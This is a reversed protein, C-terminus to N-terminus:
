ARKKKAWQPAASCLSAFDCFRCAEGPKALFKRDARMVTIVQDIDRAIAQSREWDLEQSYYFSERLYYYGSEVKLVRTEQQFLYSYLLVQMESFKSWMSDKSLRGTKFDVIQPMKNKEPNPHERVLDIIGMVPTGSPLTGRIEQEIMLPRSKDPLYFQEFFNKGIDEMDKGKEKNKLPTMTELASDVKSMFDHLNTKHHSKKLTNYSYEIAVHVASGIKGADGTSEQVNVKEAYKLRFREPCEQYTRLSSFSIPRENLFKDVLSSEKPRSEIRSETHVKKMPIKSELANVKLFDDNSTSESHNAHKASSDIQNSNSFKKSSKEKSSFNLFFYFVCFMLVILFFLFLADDHDINSASRVLSSTNFRM